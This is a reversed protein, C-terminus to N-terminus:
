GCPRDGGALRATGAGSCGGALRASGRMAKRMVRGFARAPWKRSGRLARRMTTGAQDPRERTGVEGRAIQMMTVNVAIVVGFFAVMIALMHWGTFQGRVAVSQETM